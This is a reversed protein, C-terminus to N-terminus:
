IIEVIIFDCVNIISSINLKPNLEGNVINILNKIYIEPHPIIKINNIPYQINTSMIQKINEYTENLQYKYSTIQLNYPGPNNQNQYKIFIQLNGSPPRNYKYEPIQNQQNQCIYNNTLIGSQTSIIGSFKDLDNFTFECSLTWIHPYLVTGFINKYILITNIIKKLKEDSTINLCNDFHIFKNFKKNCYNQYNETSLIHFRWIKEIKDPPFVDPNTSKIVLFREYEFIINTTLEITWGYHDAIKQEFSVM